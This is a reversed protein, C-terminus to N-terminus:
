YSHRIDFSLYGADILTTCLKKTLEKQKNFDGPIDFIIAGGHNSLIRAEVKSKDGLFNEERREFVEATIIYSM